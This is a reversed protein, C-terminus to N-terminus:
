GEDAKVLDDKKEREIAITLNAILAGLAGLAALQPLLLTGVIGVTLPIELMVKGTDNKVLIRRINGERILEKVKSVIAEGSVKFEETVVREKKEDSTQQQTEQNEFQEESM